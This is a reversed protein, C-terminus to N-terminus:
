LRLPPREGTALFHRYDALILAHDFALNEPLDTLDVLKIAQADDAAQPQGTARAVYVASVTHGRSDRAPDSYCGLLQQLEIELGTEERAERVAAQELTEGLDVFGGPLAWGPPPNKREILVLPQGAQDVLRIIIDVTLLPTEPRSM